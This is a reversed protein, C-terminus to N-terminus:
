ASSPMRSKQRDRPSPSTYLLCGYTGDGFKILSNEVIPHPEHPKLQLDNLYTKNTSNEDSIFISSDKFILSAHLRSIQNDPIKLNCSDHRGISFTVDNTIEPLKKVLSGNTLIEVKAITKLNM